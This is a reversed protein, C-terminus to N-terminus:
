TYLDQRDRQQIFIFLDLINFAVYCLLFFFHSLAPFFHHILWKHTLSEPFKFASLNSFQVALFTLLSKM